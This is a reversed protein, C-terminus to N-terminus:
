DAPFERHEVLRTGAPDDGDTVRGYRGDGNQRLFGDCVLADLVRACVTADVGCLRQVQAQTLRTGPMELFEARLREATQRPTRDM